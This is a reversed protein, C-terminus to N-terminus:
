TGTALTALPAAAVVTGVVAGVVTGVVAAVVAAAVVAAAVVIAAVLVSSVVVSSSFSSFFSSSFAELLVLPVSFIITTEAADGGRLLLLGRFPFVGLFSGDVAVGTAHDDHHTREDGQHQDHAATDEEEGPPVATAGLFRCTPSDAPVSSRRLDASEPSAVRAFFVKRGELNSGGLSEWAVPPPSDLDPEPSPVSPGLM